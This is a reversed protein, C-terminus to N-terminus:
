NLNVVAAYFLSNPFSNTSDVFEEKNGRKEEKRRGKGKGVLHLHATGKAFSLWWAALALRRAVALASRHIPHRRRSSSKKKKFQRRSYSPQPQQPEASSRLILFKPLFQNFGRIGGQEGNEGGREKKGQRGRGKEETTALAYVLDVGVIM